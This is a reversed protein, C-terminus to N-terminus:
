LKHSALVHFKQRKQQPQGM